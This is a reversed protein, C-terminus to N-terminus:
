QELDQGCWPCSGHPNPEDFIAKFTPCVFGDGPGDHDKETM